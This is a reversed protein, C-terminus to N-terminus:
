GQAALVVTLATKGKLSSYALDTAAGGYNAWLYVNLPNSVDKGSIDANLLISGAAKLYLSGAGAATIADTVTIDGNQSGGTGTFISVNTGGTLAGDIVTPDITSNNTAASYYLTPATGALSGGGGTIIDVNRPDLLWMGAKGRAASADVRGQANLGDHSSTEVRGGDGGLAGGRASISGYFNNVRDGWVVVSGGNGRQVADATLTADPAVYTAAATQLGEGGQWGGGVRISGGGDRGSADVRGGTIGVNHDSLVQVDGGHVGSADIRGSSVANGGSGVLRVVGGDTSIGHADIVGANNVLNTFLDKAASAQLVVTGSASQLTGQNAVASQETDFRRQLAGTIQVNILGNGDFDLVAKDAGDLTIRVYDAVILGSNQVNGGILSVSGGSAAAITGHNNILFIQGNSNIKGFIQSPNQDLIRNLAIASVGPQKFLVTADKGVNFTQWDLALLKSQQKIVTEAGNQVISGVGGVVKGGTPSQGASVGSAAVATGCVLLSGLALGVGFALHKYRLRPTRGDRGHHAPRSAHQSNRHNAHM